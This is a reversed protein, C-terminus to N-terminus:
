NHNHSALAGRVSRNSSLFLHACSSQPLNKALPSSRKDKESSELKKSSIVCHAWCSEYESVLFYISILLDFSSLDLFIKRSKLWKFQPLIIIIVTYSVRRFMILWFSGDTMQTNQWLIMDTSVGVYSSHGLKLINM